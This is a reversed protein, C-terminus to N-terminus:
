KRSSSRGGAVVLLTQHFRRECHLSYSVVTLVKIKRSSLLISGVKATFESWPHGFILHFSTLLGFFSAWLRRSSCSLVSFGFLGSLTMGKKLFIGGLSGGLPGWFRDLISVFIPGFDNKKPIPDRIESELSNTGFNMGFIM